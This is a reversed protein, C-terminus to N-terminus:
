SDCGPLEMAAKWRFAAINGHGCAVLHQTPFNYATASGYQPQRGKFAARHFGSRSKQQHGGVHRARRRPSVM